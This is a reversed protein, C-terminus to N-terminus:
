ALLLITSIFIVNKIIIVKHRSQDGALPASSGRPLNDLITTPNSWCRWPDTRQQDVNADFAFVLHSPRDTSVDTIHHIPFCHSHFIHVKPKLAESVEGERSSSSSSSPSSSSSSSSSSSERHNTVIICLPSSAHHRHHHPHHHHNIIVSPPAHHHMIAIIIISSSTDHRHRMTAIITIVRLQWM